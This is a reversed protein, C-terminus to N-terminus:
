VDSVRASGWVALSAAKNGGRFGLPALVDAKEAEQPPPSLGMWRDTDSLEAILILFHACPIM